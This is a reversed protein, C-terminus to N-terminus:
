RVLPPCRSQFLEAEGASDRTDPIDWGLRAGPEIGLRELTFRIGSRDWVAEASLDHSLREDSAGLGVALVGTTATNSWHGAYTVCRRVGPEDAWWTRGRKRFGAQSLSSGDDHASREARM